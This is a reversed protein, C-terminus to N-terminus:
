ISKPGTQLLFITRQQNKFHLYITAVSTAFVMVATGAFGFDRGWEVPVPQTPRRGDEDENERRDQEERDSSLPIVPGSSHGFLGGIVGIQVGIQGRGACFDGSNCRLDIYGAIAVSCRCDQAM